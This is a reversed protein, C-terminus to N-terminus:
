ATCARCGAPVGPHCPGDCWVRRRPVGNTVVSHARTAAAARWNPANRAIGTVSRPQAIPRPVGRDQVRPYLHRSQSGHRSGVGM